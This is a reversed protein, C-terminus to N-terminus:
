EKEKEPFEILLKEGDEIIVPKTLDALSLGKNAIRKALGDPVFEDILEDKATKKAEEAVMKAVEDHYIGEELSGDELCLLGYKRLNILEEGVRASTIKLHIREGVLSPLATLITSEKLKLGPVEIEDQLLLEVGKGQKIEQRGKFVARYREKQRIESNRVYTLKNGEKEKIQLLLDDKKPKEMVPSAIKAKAHNKKDEVIVQKYKKKPNDAARKALESRPAQEEEALFQSYIDLKEKTKKQPQQSSIDKWLSGIKKEQNEQLLSYKLTAFLGVGVMALIALFYPNKLFSKLREKM